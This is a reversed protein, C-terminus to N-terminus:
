AWKEWGDTRSITTPQNTKTKSSVSSVDNTGFINELGGQSQRKEQGQFFSRAQGQSDPNAASNGTDKSFTALTPNNIPQSSNAPVLSINQRALSAQLDPM